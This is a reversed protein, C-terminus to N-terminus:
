FFHRWGGVTKGGWITICKNKAVTQDVKIECRGSKKQEGSKLFHNELNSKTRKKKKAEKKTMDEVWILASMGFVDRGTELPHISETKRVYSFFFYCATNTAHM